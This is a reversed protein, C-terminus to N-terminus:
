GAIVGWSTPWRDCFRRAQLALLNDAGKRTWRMGKGKMRRKVLLDQHKEVVGSGVVHMRDEGRRLRRPLRDVGHLDEAIGELYGAVQVALEARLRLSRRLTSACARPDSFALAKLGAFVKADAGSLQWLRQAVHFHDIQHVAHPFWDRFGQGYEDLGDHVCLVHRARHLGVWHFGRAALGKGFADQDATTAYCGKNLLRWRRHRRGGSPRKGTYFVGTKVEFRDGEEGQAELFTGDAEVVVLEPELGIDLPAEGLEFVSRVLRGEETRIRAGEAQLIRWTSQHSIAEGTLRAAIEAVQRYPVRTALDCVAERLAPSAEAQSLGLARDLPHFSGEPGKVRYRWIRVRGFTTAVWREELRQRAGGSAETAQADLAALAQRYLEKSGRRGQEAIAQELAVPDAGPEVTVRLEVVVSVEPVLSV